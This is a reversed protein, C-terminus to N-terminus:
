LLHEFQNGDAQICDKYRRVVSRVVKQCLQPEIRECEQIIVERLESITRPRQAFVKDKLVGWLFFDPPTLDPSRAPWEIPGRRGIWRNPFTTDLWDRVIRGYHAPAGDQQFYTSNLNRHAIAPLFKDRLM